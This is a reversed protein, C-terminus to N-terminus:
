PRKQKAFSFLYKSLIGSLKQFSLSQYRHPMMHAPELVIKGNIVRMKPFKTEMKLPNAVPVM